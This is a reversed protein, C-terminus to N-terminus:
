ELIHHHFGTFLPLFFPRKEEEEKGSNAGCKQLVSPSRELCELGSLRSCDLGGLGIKQRRNNTEVCSIQADKRDLSKGSVEYMCVSLSLPFYYIYSHANQTKTKSEHVQRIRM